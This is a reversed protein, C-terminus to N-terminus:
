SEVYVPEEWEPASVDRYEVCGALMLTAVAILVIRAM